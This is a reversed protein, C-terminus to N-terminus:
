CQAFQATKEPFEPKQATRGSNSSAGGRGTSTAKSSSHYCEPDKIADKIHKNSSANVGGDLPWLPGQVDDDSEAEILTARHGSAPKRPELFPNKPGRFVISGVEEEAECECDDSDTIVELTEM